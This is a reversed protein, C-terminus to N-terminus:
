AEYAEEVPHRIVTFPHASCWMGTEESQNKVMFIGNEDKHTSLEFM